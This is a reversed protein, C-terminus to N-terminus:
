TEEEVESQAEVRATYQELARDASTLRRHSSQDGEQLSDRRESVCHGSANPFLLPIPFTLSFHM